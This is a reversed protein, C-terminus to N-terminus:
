LLIENFVIPNITRLVISNSDNSIILKVLHHFVFKSKPTCIEDYSHHRDISYFKQSNEYSHDFENNADNAIDKL